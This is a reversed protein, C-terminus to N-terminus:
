RSVGLACSRRHDVAATLPVRPQHHPRTVSTDDRPNIPSSRSPPHPRHTDLEALCISEIALCAKDIGLELEQRGGCTVLRYSVGTSTAGSHTAAPLASDQMSGAPIEIRATGTSDVLV